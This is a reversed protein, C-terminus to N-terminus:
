TKPRRPISRLAATEKLIAVVKAQQDTSLQNWALRAVVMHGHENWALAPVPLVVLLLGAILKKMHPGQIRM